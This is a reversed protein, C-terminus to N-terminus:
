EPSEVLVVSGSELDDITEQIRRLQEDVGERLRNGEEILESVRENSPPSSREIADVVAATTEHDPYEAQLETALEALRENLEFPNETEDLLRKVEEVTPPQSQDLMGTVDNTIPHNPYETELRRSADRLQSWLSVGQGANDLLRRARAYRKAQQIVSPDVLAAESFTDGNWAQEFLDYLDDITVGEFEVVVRDATEKSTGDHAYLWTTLSSVISNPEDDAPTEGTIREYQEHVVQRKHTEADDLVARLRDVAPIDDGDVIRQMEATVTAGPHLRQMESAQDTFREWLTEGDEVTQFLGKARDFRNAQTEIEDTAFDDTELSGGGLAPDLAEAVDDLTASDGFARSVDRLIRKVLVSNEDVWAELESLWADPDRGSVPDGIIAETIRRIQEPDGVSEFRVQVDALNTKNRVARGIAAPDTIYEDNRRLAIDNAAALTILLASISERPTGRYTGGRQVTEALLDEGRVSQQAEYEDLFNRCWGDALEGRETDVGLTIADENSLPWDGVGRFFQAMQEADDVETIGNTLVHRTLGFVSRVQETVVQEFVTEYRGRSSGTLVYVDAADLQERVASELARQDARNDAQLDPYTESEKSLVEQMGMVEQLREEMPKPIPVAILVHEGGDRGQNASQWTDVQESLTDPYHAVLRVQVADFEPTPAREIQELVSYEFRLPVSREGAVDVEHRSGESLLHASGDQLYTELKASVRHSQIEHAHTKARTLIDEQQESVLLYEEDGRDNTETLVKRDEVLEALATEVDDLTSELSADISGVMLRALNKPTSPVDARVQNLLYLAKAVRVSLADDDGGASPILKNDIMERVWLPVYTTEAVLLDYLEDWTVFAGVSKDGWEFRTFLSRVLILLTRGQVYEEKTMHGGPMLQQIVTRLLGLDYERFPYSEIPNPDTSAIAEYSDLTLDPADDITSAVTQQGTDDKQLWRKRVIIETDAGELQEQEGYWPQNTVDTDEFEGHIKKIPYQGTGVIPPNPGIGLKTLAEMTEQFEGYRNRGDGIFLAVEDLGILLETKTDPTSLDDQAEEIRAVLEDPDFEDPAVEAIATDISHKVEESSGFPSDDLMPVAEYLWSRLSAREEYVEDFTKGDHEIEQLQTWYDGHNMDLQWAWELLWNPDTPYGLERGVAEYILYPLPPEQSADRNLLNLFVPKLRDVHSDVIHQRFSRFGAWRNSLEEGLDAYESETDAAFGALKLLHTKGSGFTASIYLFRSEEHPYKDILTGLTTLVNRASDTEYFERIDNEARERANVKQVEKLERTPSQHFIDHIQTDSM